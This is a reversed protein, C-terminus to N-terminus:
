RPPKADDVLSTAKVAFRRRCHACEYQREASSADVPTIRETRDHGCFICLPTAEGPPSDHPSM